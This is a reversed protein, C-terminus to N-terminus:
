GFRGARRHRTRQASRRNGTTAVADTGPKSCFIRHLVGLVQHVESGALSYYINQSERRTVVLGDSRLRALHQSLASQSLGVVEELESVRREGDLLQCLVFLRHPNSMAKLLKAAAGAQTELEKVNM